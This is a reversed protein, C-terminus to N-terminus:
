TGEPSVRYTVVTEEKDTNGLSFWRATVDFQRTGGTAVPTIRTHYLGDVCNGNAYELSNLSDEDLSAPASVDFREVAGSNDRLCFSGAQFIPDSATSVSAQKKLLELQTEVQKLAEVREQAQRNTRLSRSAVSYGLGIALGVVVVAMLVEVITDGFQNLKTKRM